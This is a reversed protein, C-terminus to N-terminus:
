TFPKAPISDAQTNLSPKIHLIEYVLRDFKSNCKRLSLLFDDFFVDEPRKGLLIITANTYIMM